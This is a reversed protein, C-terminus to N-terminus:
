TITSQILKKTHHKQYIKGSFDKSMKLMQQNYKLQIKPWHKSIMTNWKVFMALWCMLVDSHCNRSSRNLVPKSCNLTTLKGPTRQGSLHHNLRSILNIFLLFFDLNSRNLFSSYFFIWVCFFTDNMAHSDNARNSQYNIQHLRQMNLTLSNPEDNGIWKFSECIKWNTQISMKM